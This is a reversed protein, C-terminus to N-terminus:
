ISFVTKKEYSANKEISKLFIEEKKFFEPKKGSSEPVLIDQYYRISL